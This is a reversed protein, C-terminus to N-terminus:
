NTKNISIHNADTGSVLSYGPTILNFKSIVDSITDSGTITFANVIDGDSTNDLTLTIWNDPCRSINNINIVGDMTSKNQLDLHLSHIGKDAFDESDGVITLVNGAINYFKVDCSNDRLSSMPAWMYQTKKMYMGFDCNVKINATESGNGVEIATKCKQISM